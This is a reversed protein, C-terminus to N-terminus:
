HHRVSFALQDSTPQVRIGLRFVEFGFSDPPWREHNIQIWIADYQSLNAGGAAVDEFSLYNVSVHPTNVGFDEMFWIGAKTDGEPLFEVEPTILSLDDNYTGAQGIFAIKKQAFTASTLVLM